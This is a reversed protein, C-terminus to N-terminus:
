VGCTSAIWTGAYGPYSDAPVPACCGSRSLGLQQCVAGAAPSHWLWARHPNIPLNCAAAGPEAAVKCVLGPM